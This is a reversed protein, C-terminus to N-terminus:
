QSVHHMRMDSAAVSCLKVFIVEVTESSDSALAVCVCVCVRVRVCARVCVCVCVCVCECGCVCPIPKVKFHLCFSNLYMYKLEACTFLPTAIRM